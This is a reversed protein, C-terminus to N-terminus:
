APILVGLPARLQNCLLADPVHAHPHRAALLASSITLQKRCSLTRHICSVQPPKITFFSATMQCAGREHGAAISVCVLEDLWNDCLDRRLHM